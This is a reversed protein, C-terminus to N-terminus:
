SNQMNLYPRVSEELLLILSSLIYQPTKYNLCVIYTNALM